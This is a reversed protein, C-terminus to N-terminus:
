SGFCQWEPSCYSAAIFGLSYLVRFSNRVSNRLSEQIEYFFAMLGAISLLAGIKVILGGLSFDDLSANQLTDPKFNASGLIIVFGVFGGLLLFDVTEIKKM